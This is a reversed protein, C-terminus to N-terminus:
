IYGMSRLRKIIEEKNVAYNIARRVNVDKFKPDNLNYGMYTYGFSPFNFRQFNKKFFETETQRRFQIPTLSTYDVAQARLELFM